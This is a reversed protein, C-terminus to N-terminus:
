EGPGEANRREAVLGAGFSLKRTTPAKANLVRWFSAIGAMEAGRELQGHATEAVTRLHYGIPQGEVAGAFTRPAPTVVPEATANLKQNWDKM